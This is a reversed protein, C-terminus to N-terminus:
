GSTPFLAKDILPVLARAYPVSMHNTDKYVLINGIVIPCKNKACFWPTANIVRIGNQAARDAIMARRRPEIIAKAQLGDCKYIQRANAAACVPGVGVPYPTDQILVRTPVGPM